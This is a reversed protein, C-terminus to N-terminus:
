LGEAKYKEALRHYLPQGKEVWWKQKETAKGRIRGPVGSVFSHDPVSMGQSVLCAAGIVCGAGIESEHLITANMGILTNDGISRGNIVAGHGVQVNQGIRIDGRINGDADPTLTSGSHVVCNDEIVTGAGVSILGFDGRLVAGPWVSVNEGIEVEGIVYAAESVFASAAVVPTKGDFSRIM